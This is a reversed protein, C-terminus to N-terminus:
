ARGYVPVHAGSVVGSGDECLFRVVGAIQEPKVGVEEARAISGEFAIEEGGKM